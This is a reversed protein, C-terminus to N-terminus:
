SSTSFGAEDAQLPLEIGRSKAQEGAAVLALRLEVSARQRIEEGLRFV